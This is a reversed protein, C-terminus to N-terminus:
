LVPKSGRLHTPRLAGARAAALNAERVQIWYEYIDKGAAEILPERLPGGVQALEYQSLKVYWANRDRASLETFGAAEMTALTEAATTMAFAHQSLEIFRAWEPSAATNEGGLWDSAVFLGGPRLVRLIERYVADKDVFHILADKSFVVDFSDNGFPLPGPEVLRFEIRSGVGAKQAFDAGQELLAPQVDIAVIHALETDRALVICPGGTGCGVDLVSKGSLDIGKVIELVEEPGGPSLFGNGWVIHLRDVFHRAYNVDNSM